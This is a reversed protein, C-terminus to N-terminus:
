DSRIKAKKLVEDLKASISSASISELRSFSSKVCENWKVQAEYPAKRVAESVQPMVCNKLYEYAEASESSSSWVGRIISYYVAGTVISLKTVASSRSGEEELGPHVLHDDSTSEFDAAVHNQTKITQVSISMSIHNEPAKSAPISKQELMVGNPLKSTSEEEVSVIVPKPEVLPQVFKRIRPKLEVFFGFYEHNARPNASILSELSELGNLFQLIFTILSEPSTNAECKNQLFSFVTLVAQKDLQLIAILLTWSFLSTEPPTFVESGSSPKLERLVLLLHGLLKQLQQQTRLARHFTPAEDNLNCHPSIELNSFSDLKDGNVARAFGPRKQGGVFVGEKQTVLPLFMGFDSHLRQFCRPWDDVIAVHERCAILRNALLWHSLLSSQLDSSEMLDNQPNAENSPISPVNAFIEELSKWSGERLFRCKVREFFADVENLVDDTSKDSLTTAKLFRMLDRVHHWQCEKIATELLLLASSSIQLLFVGCPM